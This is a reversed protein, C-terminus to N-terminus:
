LNYPDRYLNAYLGGGGGPFLQVGGGGPFDHVGQCINSGRQFRPFNYNEKFYVMSLGSGFQLILQPSLFFM